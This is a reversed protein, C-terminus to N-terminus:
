VLGLFEDYLELGTNMALDVRGKGVISDGIVYIGLEKLKNITQENIKNEPLALRWLKLNTYHTKNNKLVPILNELEKIIKETVKKEEITENAESFTSSMQIVLCLTNPKTVRGEKHNEVSIWSINHLRDSNILAYFDLDQDNEFAIVCSFIKKYKIEDLGKIIDESINLNSNKLIKAINFAPLGFVIYDFEGFKRENSYIEWGDDIKHIKEINTSLHTKFNNLKIQSNLLYGIQNIGSKYSYKTLKNHEEAKKLHYDISNFKDFPFIWKNITILESTDLEKNIINLVRENTSSIYNAGNDFIIGDTKRTTARGSLVKSREFLDVSIKDYAKFSYIFSLSSVGAGIVAVRKLNNSKEM